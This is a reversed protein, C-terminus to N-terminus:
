DGRPQGGLWGRRRFLVVFGLAVLGMLLLSFPYGWSWKLEPMSDFNMGYVGAIFSLPIFITSIITLTRMAENLRHSMLSVHFQMLAITHELLAEVDESVRIVHDALDTLYVRTNETVLSTKERQLAAVLDRLPREHRRLALLETRLVLLEHTIAKEAGQILRDELQDLGEDYRDLLPFYQDVIADLIEYALYDAGLERVRGMGTRIRERVLGLCDGPRGEQFTIVFDPGLILDVEEPHTDRDGVYMHATIFLHSGYTEFKPRQSRHVLDELALAHLGFYEGLALLTPTDLLGDVNLWRVQTGAALRDLMEIRDIATDVLKAGDWALLLMKAGAGAVEPLTGPAAGIEHRLRRITPPRRKVSTRRKVMGGRHDATFALRDVTL